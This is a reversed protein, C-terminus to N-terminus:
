RLVAGAVVGSVGSLGLRGAGRLREQAGAHLRDGAGHCVLKAQRRIDPTDQDGVDRGASRGPFGLQDLRVLALCDGVDDCRDLVLRDAGLCFKRRRELTGSGALDHGQM